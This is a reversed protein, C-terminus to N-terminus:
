STSAPSHKPLNLTIDDDQPSFHFQCLHLPCELFLHVVYLLSSPCPLLGGTPTVLKDAPTHTHPPSYTFVLTRSGPEEFRRSPWLLSRALYFCHNSRKFLCPSTGPIGREPSTSALLFRSWWPPPSDPDVVQMTWPQLYTLLQKQMFQIVWGWCATRQFLLPRPQALDM